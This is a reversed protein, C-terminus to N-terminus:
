KTIHKYSEFLENSLYGKNISFEYIKRLVEQNVGPIINDMILEKKLYHIVYNKIWYHVIHKNGLYISDYLYKFNYSNENNM